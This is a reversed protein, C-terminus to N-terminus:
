KKGKKGKKSPKKKPEPPPPPLFVGLQYQAPAPQMQVTPLGIQDALGFEVAEKPTLYIDRSKKFMEQLQAVAKGCNAALMQLWYSNLREMERTDTVIDNIHGGAGASLEHIMIRAHPTVFRVDGHSLLSAAASMATGVAVTVFQNPVADMVSIMSALADVSGGYSDIYVVIPANPDKESLDLVANAFREATEPTFERIWIRTKPQEMPDINTMQPAEPHDCNTM